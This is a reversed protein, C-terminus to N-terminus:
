GLEVWYFAGASQNSKHVVSTVREIQRGYPDNKEIDGSVYVLNLAPNEDMGHVKTVLAPYFLGRPNRYNVVDGIFPKM